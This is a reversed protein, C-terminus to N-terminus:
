GLQRAAARPGHGPYEVALVEITSPLEASWRRYAAATGGAYPLCVLRVDSYPRPEVRLIWPSESVAAVVKGRLAGDRPAGFILRGDRMSSPTERVWLAGRARVESTRKGPRRGRAVM